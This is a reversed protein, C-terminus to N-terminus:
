KTRSERGSGTPKSRKENVPQRFRFGDDGKCWAHVEKRSRLLTQYAFEALRPTDTVLQATALTRSDVFGAALKPYWNFVQQHLNIENPVLKAPISCSTSQLRARM